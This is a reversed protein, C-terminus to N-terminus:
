RVKGIDTGSDPPANEDVLEVDVLESSGSKIFEEFADARRLFDSDAPRSTQKDYSKVAQSLAAVRIKEDRNMM